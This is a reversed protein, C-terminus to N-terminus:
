VLGLVLSAEDSHEIHRPTSSVCGRCARRRFVSCCGSTLVCRTGSSPRCAFLQSSCVNDIKKNLIVFSLDDTNSHLVLSVTGTIQVSNEFIRHFCFLAFSFRLVAIQHNQTYLSKKLKIRYKAYLPLGVSTQWDQPSKLVLNNLTDRIRNNSGTFADPFHYTQAQHESYDRLKEPSAPDGFFFSLSSLVDNRSPAFTSPAPLHKAMNSEATAM